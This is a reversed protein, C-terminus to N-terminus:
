LLSRHPHIAVCLHSNNDGGGKSSDDDNDDSDHDDGVTYWQHYSPGILHIDTPLARHFHSDPQYARLASSIRLLDQNVPSPLIALLLIFRYVFVGVTWM